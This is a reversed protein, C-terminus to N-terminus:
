SLLFNSDHQSFCLHKDNNEFGKSTLDMWARAELLQTSERRSSCFLSIPIEVAAGWPMVFGVCSQSPM